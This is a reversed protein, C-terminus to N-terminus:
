HDNSGRCALCSGLDLIPVDGESLAASDDTCGLVENIAAPASASCLVDDFFVALEVVAWRLQSLRCGRSHAKMRGRMSTSVSM